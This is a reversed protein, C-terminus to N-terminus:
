SCWDKKEGHNNVHSILGQIAVVANIAPIAYKNILSTCDSPSWFQFDDTQVRNLSTGNLNLKGSRPLWETKIYCFLFINWIFSLRISDNLAQFCIILPTWWPATALHYFALTNCDATLWLSRGGKLPDQLQIPKTTWNKLTIFIVTYHYFLLDKQAWPKPIRALSDMSSFVNLIASSLQERDQTTAESLRPSFQHIQSININEWTVIVCTLM